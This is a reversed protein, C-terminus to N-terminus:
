CYRKIRSGLVKSVLYLANVEFSHWYYIGNSFVNNVGLSTRYQSFSLNLDRSNLVAQSCKIRQSYVVTQNLNITGLKRNKVSTGGHIDVFYLLNANFLEISGFVPVDYAM